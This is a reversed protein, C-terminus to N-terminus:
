KVRIIDADTMGLAIALAVVNDREKQHVPSSVMQQIYVMSHGTYFAARIFDTFSELSMDAAQTKSLIIVM